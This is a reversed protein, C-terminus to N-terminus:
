PNWASGTCRALFVQLQRPLRTPGLKHRQHPTIVVLEFHAVRPHKQLFRYSQAALRHQFGPDPHMQVELLVVPFEPSGTEACGTSERPWLVGDLRHSLEKLELAEFRYLRDGPEAPDVGLDTTAGESGPLLARILDPASQFM